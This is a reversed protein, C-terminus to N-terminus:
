GEGGEGTQADGDGDGLGVRAIDDRDECAERGLALRQHGGGALEADDIRGEQEEAGPRPCYAM